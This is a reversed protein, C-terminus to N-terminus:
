VSGLWWLHYREGLGPPSVRVKYAKDPAADGQLLLEIPFHHHAVVLGAIWCLEFAVDHRVEVM